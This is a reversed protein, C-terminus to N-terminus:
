LWARRIASCTGSVHGGHHTHLATGTHAMHQLQLLRALGDCGYAECFAYTTFCSLFCQYSHKSSYFCVSKRTVCMCVCMCLVLAALHRVLIDFELKDNDDEIEHQVLTLRVSVQQEILDRGVASAYM